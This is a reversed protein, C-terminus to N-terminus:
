RSQLVILARRKLTKVEFLKRTSSRVERIYDSTTIKGAQALQGLYDLLDEYACEEALLDIVQQGVVSEAELYTLASSAVLSGSPSDTSAPQVSQQKAVWERNQTDLINLEDVKKEMMQKLMQLEGRTNTLKMEHERFAMETRKLENLKDLELKLKAPLKARIKVTISKVLQDHRSVVPAAMIPTVVGMTKSHALGQPPKGAGRIANVPPEASFMSALIGLIEVLSSSYPNWHTLQPLFVRGNMDVCRHNPKIVMDATPTVFVRPPQNPYPPDVYITVPINYNNGGYTIPVVGSLFFLTISGANSQFVGVNPRLTSSHHLLSQMDQRLRAVNSYFTIRSLCDELSSGSHGRHHTM